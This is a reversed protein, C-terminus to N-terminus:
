SKKIKGWISPAILAAITALLYFYFGVGFHLGFSKVAAGVTWVHVFVAVNLVSALFGIMEMRLAYGVIAVLSLVIVLWATHIDIAETLKFLNAHEGYGSLFPLFISIFMVLASIVGILDITTIKSILTKVSFIGKLPFPEGPHQATLFALPNAKPMAPQGYGQMPAGQYMQPNPQQMGPQTYGMGTNQAPQQPEQGATMNQVPQGFVQGANGNQAATKQGVNAGCNPCIAANDPVQTGCQSCFM